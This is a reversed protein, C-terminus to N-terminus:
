CRRYKDYFIGGLVFEIFPVESFKYSLIFTDKSFMVELSFDSSMLCWKVDSTILGIEYKSAELINEVYLISIIKYGSIIM